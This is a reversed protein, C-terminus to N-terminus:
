DFPLDEDSINEGDIELKIAVCRTVVGNIRKTITTRSRSANQVKLKGTEWMWSLLAQPSFGAEEVAQRFVSSIIYAVDDQVLGYVDNYSEDSRSRMKNANRAVWDCIYQYGRPGISVASKSALFQAIESVTLARGDKFIWETALTDAVLICAAAMAQKEATDNESLEKFFTSYLKQSRRLEDGSDTYLHSVFDRGAHGYAKCLTAVVDHGSEVIKHTPSCEIEIVRNIAGAGANGGTIPTEGTTMICNSWTPTKDVGGTKNGRSRGIGEALQYVDFMMKGHADKTLQLEDICLPLNNFFAAFRERGVMTSNFTQIYGGNHLDPNGWVSAAIMLAVTKGTGSEGGWLHVFFPLCGCPQVLASAFSAALEIRAAVNTQRINRMLSIWDAYNGHSKISDFAHKFNQDGDFVLNDVYPSFGEDQIYGLRSVSKKEPIEKYNLTCVDSMYKVFAGSNESTVEIGQDALQVVKQRSALISKDVIIEKWRRDGNCYALKMKVINTDINVLREVPMVPHPCAIEEGYTGPRSIGYDNAIWDGSDLDMKQGTFATLNNSNRKKQSQLYAKWLTNFNKIKLVTRAYEALQAKATERQFPDEISLVDEYPRSTAFDEKTYDM